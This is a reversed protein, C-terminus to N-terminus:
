EGNKERPIEKRLYEVLATRMLESFSIGRRTALAKAIAVPRNPLYMNIRSSDTKGRAM